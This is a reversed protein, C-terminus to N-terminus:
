PARYLDRRSKRASVAAEALDNAAIGRSDPVLRLLKEFMLVVLVRLMVLGDLTM